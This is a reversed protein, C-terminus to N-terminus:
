LVVLNGGELELEAGRPGGIADVDPGRGALEGLLGHSGQTGPLSLRELSGDDEARSGDEAQEDADENGGKRRVVHLLPHATEGPLEAM